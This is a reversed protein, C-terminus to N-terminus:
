CSHSLSLSGTVFCCYFPISSFLFLLSLLPQVSHPLEHALSLSLCASSPHQTDMMGAAYGTARALEGPVGHPFSGHCINCSISRITAIFMVPMGHTRACAFGFAAFLVTHFRCPNSRTKKERCRRNETATQTRSGRHDSGNERFLFQQEM